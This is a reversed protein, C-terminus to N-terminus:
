AARQTSGLDLAALTQHDLDIWCAVVQKGDVLVSHGARHAHVGIRRFLREMSLFTVGIIRHAGLTMACQVAATLLPQVAWRYSAERGHSSSVAFRSLEWVETSVPPPMDASLLTPFIEQLLYPATTPLLRACGCIAGLHDRAVVYMTDDRDYQDRECSDRTQLKWGLQKVFVDYRYQGLAVAVEAPLDSGRHILIRM